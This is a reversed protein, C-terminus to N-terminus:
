GKNQSPNKLTGLATRSGSFTLLTQTGLDKQSKPFNWVKEKPM